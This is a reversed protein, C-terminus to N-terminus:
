HIPSRLRPLHHRGVDSHRVARRRKVYGQRLSRERVIRQNLLFHDPRLGQRKKRVEQVLVDVGEEAAPILLHLGNSPDSTLDNPVNAVDELTDPFICLHMQVSAAARAKIQRGRIHVDNHSKRARSAGLAASAAVAFSVAARPDCHRRGLSNQRLVRNDLVHAEDFLSELVHRPQQGALRDGRRGHRHDLQADGRARRLGLSFSSCGEGPASLAASTPALASSCDSGGDLMHVHGEAMSTSILKSPVECAPM